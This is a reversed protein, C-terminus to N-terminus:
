ANYEGEREAVREALESETFWEGDVETYGNDIAWQETYTDGLEVIYASKTETSWCNGDGDTWYDDTWEGIDECYDYGESLATEADRYHNGDTTTIFDFDESIYYECNADDCFVDCRERYHGYGYSDYAYIYGASEACADCCFYHTTGYRDTADVYDYESLRDGCEECRGNEDDCCTLTDGSNFEVGCEVCIPSHGIHLKNENESGKLFSINVDDYATYDRYHTGESCSWDYYPSNGKKLTWYNPVDFIEAVIRQVIERFQGALSNDGGDRGDPYLRSQGLKDEGVFFLCRKEKTYKDYKNEDAKTYVVVTVGDLMYSITGSMYQGHYSQTTTRGCVEKLHYGASFDHCSSTTNLWSSTLYDLPNLSIYLEKKYTTPNIADCYQAYQYNWGRDVERSRLEGTIEDTWEVTQMDVFKDLGIFKALKGIVRSVKTGENVKRFDAKYYDVNNNIQEAKEESLTQETYYQLCYMVDNFFSVENQREKPLEYEYNCGHKDCFSNYVDNMRKWEAECERIQADLEQADYCDRATMLSSARQKYKRIIEYYERVGFLGIKLTYKKKYIEQVTDRAWKCFDYVVNADVQRKLDAKYVLALKEEDWYPSTRFASILEGKNEVWEDLICRLGYETPYFDSFREIVEKMESNLSILTSTEITAKEFKKFM